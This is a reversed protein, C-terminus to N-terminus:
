SSSKSRKDASWASWRRLRPKTNRSYIPLRPTKTWPAPKMSRFEFAFWSVRSIMGSPFRTCARGPLSSKRSRGSSACAHRAALRGGRRRAAHHVRAAEISRIADAAGAPCKTVAYRNALILDRQTAPNRSPGHGTRTWVRGDRWTRSMDTRGEIDATIDSRRLRCSRVLVPLPITTKPNFKRATAFCIKLNDAM